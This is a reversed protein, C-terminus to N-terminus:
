IRANIVFIKDQKTTIENSPNSRLQESSL